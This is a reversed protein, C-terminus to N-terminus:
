RKLRRDSRGARVPAMWIFVVIVIFAKTTPQLHFSDCRARRRPRIEIM